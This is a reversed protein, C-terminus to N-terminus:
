AIMVVSRLSSMTPDDVPDPCNFHGGAPIGPDADWVMLPCIAVPPDIEIRTNQPLNLDRSQHIHGGPTSTLPNCSHCHQTHEPDGIDHRFSDPRCCSSEERCSAHNRSGQDECAGACLHMCIGPDIISLCFLALVAHKFLKM